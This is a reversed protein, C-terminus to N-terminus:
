YLNNCQDTATNRSTFRTMHLIVKSMWNVMSNVLGSDGVYMARSILINFLTLEMSGGKGPKINNENCKFNNAIGGM